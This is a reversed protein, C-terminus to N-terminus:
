LWHLVLIARALLCRAALARALLLTSNKQPAKNLKKQDLVPANQGVAQQVADLLSTRRFELKVILQGPLNSVFRIYWHRTLLHNMQRECAWKPAVHTDSPKLKIAIIQPLAFRSPMDLRKVAFCM